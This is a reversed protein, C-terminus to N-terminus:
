GDRDRAAHSESGASNDGNGTDCGVCRLYVNCDIGPKRSSDTDLDRQASEHDRDSSGTPYCQESFRGDSCNNARATGAAGGAIGAGSRFRCAYTCRVRDRGYGGAPLRQAWSDDVTSCSGDNQSNWAAAAGHTSVSVRVLEREAKPLPRPTLTARVCEAV